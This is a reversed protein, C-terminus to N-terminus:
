KAASKAPTTPDVKDQEKDAELKQVREALEKFSANIEHLATQFETKSVVM